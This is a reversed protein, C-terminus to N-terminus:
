DYTKMLEKLDYPIVFDQPLVGTDDAQAFISDLLEQLSKRPSRPQVPIWGAKIREDQEDLAKREKDTEQHITVAPRRYLWERVINAAKNYSGCHLAFSNATPMDTLGNMEDFSPVHGLTRSVTYLRLLYDNKKQDYFM